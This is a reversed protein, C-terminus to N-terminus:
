RTRKTREASLQVVEPAAGRSLLQVVEGLVDRVRGDDVGVLALAARVLPLARGRDRSDSESDCGIGSPRTIM